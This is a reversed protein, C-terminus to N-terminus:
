NLNITLMMSDFVYPLEIGDENKLWVSCFPQEGYEVSIEMDTIFYIENELNRYENKSIGLIIEDTIGLNFIDNDKYKEYLEDYPVLLVKDGIDIRM